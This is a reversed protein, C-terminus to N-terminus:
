QRAKRFSARCVPVAEAHILLKRKGAPEVYKQDITGDDIWRYVTDRNVRFQDAFEAPTLKEVPKGPKVVYSGDGNPVIVPQCFVAFTLQAPNDKAKRM